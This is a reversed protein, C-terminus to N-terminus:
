RGPDKRKLYDFYRKRFGKADFVPFSRQKIYGPIPFSKGRPWLWQVKKPLWSVLRYLRPHRMLFAWIFLAISELRSTQGSEVIKTRLKLLHSPLDIRLPCIDACARCLTCLFPSLKGRKEGLFQSALTIGIPGMYVWGYAHGGILQYIPCSNLCAGCRICYLTERLEPDKLVKLRGNDLLILHVEEPGEQYKGRTPGSILHVYTSAKQGTANPALVKLIYPLAELNPLVKEIGMIAIHIRPLSLTLRANAENEIICLVGSEAIAFNVGTIGMDARLFKERLIKRAIQLLKNPDDTYQCGLKEEFLRGIDRRSLHLAPMILHSPVQDKLQVIYEGLDTELVDFGKEQLNSNLKIEETTLSKSKVIRKVGREEALSLIIERAEKDDVAWHVQIGNKLCNTELQTLYQGLNEIVERKISHNKGRLDEWYPIEDVLSRRSQLSSETAKLVAEKLNKDKLSRRILKRIKLPSM